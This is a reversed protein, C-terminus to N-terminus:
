ERNKPLTKTQPAATEAARHLRSARVVVGDFQSVMQKERGEGPM